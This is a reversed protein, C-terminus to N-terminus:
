TTVKSVSVSVTDGLNWGAVDAPTLGALRIPAPTQAPGHPAVGPSAASTPSPPTLTVAAADTTGVRSKQIDTVTFTLIVHPFM